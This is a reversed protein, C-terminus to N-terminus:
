CVIIFSTNIFSCCFHILCHSICNFCSSSSISAVILCYLLFLCGDLSELRKYIGILEDMGKFFNFVSFVMLFWCFLKITFISFRTLFYSLSMLSFSNKSLLASLYLLLIQISGFSWIPFSFYIFIFPM